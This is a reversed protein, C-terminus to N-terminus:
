RVKSFHLRAYALMAAGSIAGLNVLFGFLRERTIDSGPLGLVVEAGFWVPFVAFQVAAAVGILYRRGADDTISLGAAIGIIASILFNGMLNRFANFLLPGGEIWAVSAGAAFALATSVLLARLGHVALRYERAWLGFSVALIQSLFPLVLAGVVISISSNHILGDALLVAGATARGIYSPTLHSLQWLDQVIDPLPESMPRTLTDMSPAPRGIISRIERSTLTHDCRSLTESNMFREVFARANPTSTEVSFQIRAVDNVLTDTIAVRDIGSERALRTAESICEVPLTVRIEHM